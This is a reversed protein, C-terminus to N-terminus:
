ETLNNHIEEWELGKKIIQVPEDDPFYFVKESNKDVSEIGIAQLTFNELKKSYLVKLTSRYTLGSYKIIGEVIFEKVVSEKRLQNVTDM